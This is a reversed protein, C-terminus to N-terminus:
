RKPMHTGLGELKYRLSSLIYPRILDAFQEASEALIMIRYGDKQKRPQCLLQYKETLVSCLHVVDKKMFGQTHIIRARHHQSKLAGDDMFWIALAQPTLWRHILPPVIKKRTDYFQQGFFRFSGSSVTSFWYHDTKIGQYEKTKKQPPTLVWERFQEYLWDVYAKHRMSQEVKLRYTKGNNQTELHGDGLMLGILIEKQKSTLHLSKKYTEIM